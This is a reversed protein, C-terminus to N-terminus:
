SGKAICLYLLLGPAGMRATHGRKRGNNFFSTVERPSAAPVTWAPEERGPQGLHGM